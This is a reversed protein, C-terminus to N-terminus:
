RHLHEHEHCVCAEGHAADVLSKLIRCPKAKEGALCQRRLRRLQMELAALSELRARVRAIQLDVISNVSDCSRPNGDESFDLLTRIESLPMELSRCHRIFSLRELHSQGYIRYGSETRETQPLLGEREYYRITEVDAGTRKALEGIKM